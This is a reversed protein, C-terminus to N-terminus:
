FTCNAIGCRFFKSKEKIILLRPHSVANVTSCILRHKRKQQPIHHHHHHPPTLLFVFNVSETKNPVHVHTHTNRAPKATWWIIVIVTDRMMTMAAKIVVSTRLFQYSLKRQEQASAHQFPGPPDPWHRGPIIKEKSRTKPAHKQLQAWDPFPRWLLWWRLIWWCSSLQWFRVSKVGALTGLLTSM